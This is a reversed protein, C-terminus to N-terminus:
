RGCEDDCGFRKKLNDYTTKGGLLVGLGYPQNDDYLEMDCQIKCVDGQCSRACNEYCDDHRQCTAPTLDPLFIAFLTGEPGCIGYPTSPDFTYATWHNPNNYWAELGMPDIRSIPNASVYSYLNMGGALGIPDVTIYRGTEPDYYRNWNYHLGTEGDLYQGPFTLYQKVTNGHHKREGFASYEYSVTVKGKHDTLAAPTNLGDLHYYYIEGKQEIALPESTGLGYLYRTAKETKKDKDDTGIELELILNAGDYVYTYTKTEVKDGELEEVKKEIRRNFPDYKFSVVKTEDKEFKTARVLRNEYDYEYTWSSPDEDDFGTKGTLNGNSDYQYNYKRAELLQNVNDYTYSDQWAPGSLRNGFL